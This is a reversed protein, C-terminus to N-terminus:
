PNEPDHSQLKEQTTTFLFITIVKLEEQDDKNESNLKPREYTGLEKIFNLKTVGAEEYIEREATHLIDEKSEAHGKPLSWELGRQSVVLVKGEKNVVVGGGSYTRRM